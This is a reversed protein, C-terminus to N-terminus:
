WHLYIYRLKMDTFMNTNLVGWLSRFADVRKVAMINICISERRQQMFKGCGGGVDVGGSGNGGMREWVRLGLWMCVGAVCGCGLLVCGGWDCVDVRAVCVCGLWMWGDLGGGGGWGCVCVGLWVGM